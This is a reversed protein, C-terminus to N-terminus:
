VLLDLLLQRATQLRTEDGPLVGQLAAAADVLFAAAAAAAGVFVVVLVVGSAAAGLDHFGLRAPIRLDLAEDVFHTDRVLDEVQMGGDLFAAEVDQLLQEGPFGDDSRQGPNLVASILDAELHSALGLGSVLIKEGLQRFTHCNSHRQREEFASKM